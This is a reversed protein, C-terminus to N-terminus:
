GYLYPTVTRHKPDNQQNVALLIRTREREAKDEWASSAQYEHNTLFLLNLAHYRIFAIHPISEFPLAANDFRMRRPKQIFFYRPDLAQGAAPRLELTRQNVFDYYYNQFKSTSSLTHSARRLLQSDIDALTWAHYTGDETLIELKRIYFVDDATSNETPPSPLEPEDLFGSAPEQFPIGFPLPEDNQRARRGATQGAYLNWGLAKEAFAPSAVEVLTGGPTPGHTLVPSELTESGSETALTYSLSYTRPPVAGAPIVIFTDGATTNLDRDADEITITTATNSKVVRTEGNSVGSTIVLTRGEHEDVVMGLAARGITRVTNIDSITTGLDPGPGVDTATPATTPDPISVITAREDGSAFNVTVPGGMFNSLQVLILSQWLSEVADNIAEKCLDPDITERLWRTVEAKMSGLSHM